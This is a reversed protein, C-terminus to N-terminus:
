ESPCHYKLSSETSSADLRKQAWRQKFQEVQKRQLPSLESELQDGDRTKAEAQTISAKIKIAEFRLQSDDSSDLLRQALDLVRQPQQDGFGEAFANFAARALSPHLATTSQRELFAATETNNFLSLAVLARLRYYNPLSDDAAISRLAADTGEGHCLFPEPKLEWETGALLYLVDENQPQAKLACSSMMLLLILLFLRSGLSRGFRFTSTLQLSNDM